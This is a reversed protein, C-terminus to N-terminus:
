LRFFIHWWLISEWICNTTWCPHNQKNTQKKTKLKAILLIHELSHEFCFFDTNFFFTNFVTIKRNKQIHKNSLTAKTIFFCKFVWKSPLCPTPVGLSLYTVKNKEWIIEYWERLTNGPINITSLIFDGPGKAWSYRCLPSVHKFPRSAHHKHCTQLAWHFFQQLFCSYAFNQM